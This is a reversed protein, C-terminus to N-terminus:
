HVMPIIHNPQSSTETLIVVNKTEMRYPRTVNTSILVLTVMVLIVTAVPVLTHVLLILANQLQTVHHNMIYTSILASPTTMTPQTITTALLSTVNMLMLVNSVTAM